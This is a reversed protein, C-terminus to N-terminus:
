LTMYYPGAALMTCTVFGTFSFESSTVASIIIHVLFELILTLLCQLPITM